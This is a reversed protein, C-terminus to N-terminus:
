TETLGFFVSFVSVEMNLIFSKTKDYILNSDPVISVQTGIVLVRAEADLMAQFDPDALKWPSTLHPSSTTAPNAYIAGLSNGGGDATSSRSSADCVSAAPAERQGQCLPNKEM